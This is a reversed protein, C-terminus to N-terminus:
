LTGTCSNWVLFLSVLVILTTFNRNSAFGAIEKVSYKHGYAHASRRIYVSNPFLETLIKAEKHLTSNLSTTVLVKPPTESNEFLSPFRAQLSEPTLNLDTATSQAPSASRKSVAPTRDEAEKEEGEDEDEEELDEELMSDVDDDDEEDGEEEDDSDGTLAATLDDGLNDNVRRRKTAQLDVALGIDDDDVGDAVDWKRKADITLPVNKARRQDRLAPNKDETRRRKLRDDRKSSEKAKKAKLHQEQRKIKNGIKRPDKSSGMDYSPRIRQSLRAHITQM